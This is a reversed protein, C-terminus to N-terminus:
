KNKSPCFSGRVERLADGVEREDKFNEGQGEVNKKNREAPETYRDM